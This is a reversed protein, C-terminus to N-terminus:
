KSSYRLRQGRSRMAFERSVPESFYYWYGYFCWADRWSAPNGKHRTSM